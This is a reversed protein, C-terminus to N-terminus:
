TRTIRDDFKSVSRKPHYQEESQWEAGLGTVYENCHTRGRSCNEKISRHFQHLKGWCSYRGGSKNCNDDALELSQLQPYHEKVLDICQGSVPSCILPVLFCDIKQTINRHRRNRVMVCVVDKKQINDEKVGFPKLNLFSRRLTPLNLKQRLKETIFSRQSCNDFIIRAELIKTKKEDTVEALATQLLVCNNEPDQNSSDDTSNVLTMIRAENNTDEGDERQLNEDPLNKDCIAEHHKGNCKSCSLTSRKHCKEATHNPILCIFCRREKQVIARRAEVSKVTRCESSQHGGKWLFYM